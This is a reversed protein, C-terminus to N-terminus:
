RDTTSMPGVGFVLLIAGERTRASFRQPEGSVHLIAGPNLTQQKDEKAGDGDIVQIDGRLCVIDKNGSLLAAPLAKGAPIKLVVSYMAPKLLAGSIVALEIGKLSNMSDPAPSFKLQDPDVFRVESPAGEGPTVQATSGSIAAAPKPGAPGFNAALYDVLMPVEDSTLPAGQELMRNVSDMWGDKPLRASVVRELTHCFQCKAVVVRKAPGDPLQAVWKSAQAATAAPEALLASVRTIASSLLVLSIWVIKFQLPYGYVRSANPHSIHNM